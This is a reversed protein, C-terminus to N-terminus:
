MQSEGRHEAGAPNWTQKNECLGTQTRQSRIVDKQSLSGHESTENTNLFGQCNHFYKYKPSFFILQSETFLRHVRFQFSLSSNCSQYIVARNPLSIDQNLCRPIFARCHTGSCVVRPLATYQLPDQRQGSFWDKTLVAGLRQFLTKM